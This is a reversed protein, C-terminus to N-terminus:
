TGLLARSLEADAALRARRRARAAADPERSPRSPQSPVASPLETKAARTQKGEGGERGERSVQRRQQIEEPVTRSPAAKAIDGYITTVAAHYRRKLEHGDQSADLFMGKRPMWQASCIFESSAADHIQAPEALADADFYVIVQRGEMGLQAFAEPHCYYGTQRRGDAEFRVAAKGATIRTVHWSRRFLHESEAPLRQLPHQRLADEWLLRPVGRFVDGEMPEDNLYEVIAELRKMLETGSLFHQRPDASGRRCAEFQKKARENPRRQQDRGLNGWLTGELRQMRDFAAEVPKSKPLYSTWINLTKPFFFDAGQTQRHWDTVNTPLMQLGGVRKEFSAEGEGLTVDVGRILNSEWTGREHQFGLRPLGHLAFARGYAGWIDAARYGSTERAILTLMFLCNSAVDMLPLLQGQCLKVGFKFESSAKDFHPNNLAHPWPVWWGWIPTTDDSTWVDGPLIDVRRPTWMGRLSLARPGQHALAQVKDIRIASRISPPLAHKSARPLGDGRYDALHALLEPASGSRAVLRFAATASGTDLATARAKGLLRDVEEQGIKEALKKLESKRGSKHYAPVLAPWGGRNFARTFRYLSAYTVGLRQAAERLSLDPQAQTLAHFSELLSRRRAFEVRAEESLASHPVPLASDPASDSEAIRVGCEANLSEPSPLGARHEHPSRPCNIGQVPPASVAGDMVPPEVGGEGDEVLPSEVLRASTEAFNEDESGVRLGVGLGTGM